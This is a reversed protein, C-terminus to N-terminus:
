SRLFEYIFQLQKPTEVMPYPRQERMKRIIVLPSTKPNKSLSSLAIFTGTRGVGAGCHVLIPSEFSSKSGGVHNLLEKIQDIPPVEFDPWGIFSWHTMVKTEEGMKLLIERKTLYPLVSEESKCEISFKENLATWKAGTPPYYNPGEALQVATSANEQMALLWYRLIDGPEAPYKTAIYHQNLISIRHADVSVVEDLNKTLQIPQVRPLPECELLKYDLEQIDGIQQKQLGIEYGASLATQTYSCLNIHTKPTLYLPKNQMRFADLMKQDLDSSESRAIKGFYKELAGQTAWVSGVHPGVHVIQPKLSQFVCSAVSLIRRMLGSIGRNSMVSLTVPQYRKSEFQIQHKFAGPNFTIM